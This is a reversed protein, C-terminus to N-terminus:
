NWKEINHSSPSVSEKSHLVVVAACFTFCFLPTLWFINTILPAFLQRTTVIHGLKTNESILSFPNKTIRSFLWIYQSSATPLIVDFCPLDFFPGSVGSCILISTNIPLSSRHPLKTARKYLADPTQWCSSILPIKAHKTLTRGIIELQCVM